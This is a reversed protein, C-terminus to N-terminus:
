RLTSWMWDRITKGKITYTPQSQPDSSTDSKSTDSQPPTQSDNQEKESDPKEKPQETDPITSPTTNDHDNFPNNNNNDANDNNGSNLAQLKAYSPDTKINAVTYEGKSLEAATPAKPEGAEMLGLHGTMEDIPGFMPVPTEANVLDVYMFGFGLGFAHMDINHDVSFDDLFDQDYRSSWLMPQAYSTNSVTTGVWRAYGRVIFEAIGVHSPKLNLTPHEYPGDYIKFTQTVIDVEPIRGQAAPTNFIDIDHILRPPHHGDASRVSITMEPTPRTPDGYFIFMLAGAMRHGLAFAHWGNKSDKYKYWNYRVYLDSVGSSQNYYQTLSTCASYHGNDGLAKCHQVPRYALALTTFSLVTTLLSSWSPLVTM